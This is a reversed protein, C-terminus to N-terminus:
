ARTEYRTSKLRGTLRTGSPSQFSLGAETQRRFPLHILGRKIRSAPASPKPCPTTSKSSSEDTRYDGHKEEVKRCVIHTTQSPRIDSRPVFGGEWAIEFMKALIAAPTRLTFRACM